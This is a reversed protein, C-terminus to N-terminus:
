SQESPGSSCYRQPRVKNLQRIFPSYEIRLVTQTSVQYKGGMSVIRLSTNRPHFEKSVTRPAPTSKVDLEHVFLKNPLIYLFSLRLSNHTHAVRSRESTCHHGINSQLFAGSARQGCLIEISKCTRASHVRITLSVNRLVGLVSISIDFM